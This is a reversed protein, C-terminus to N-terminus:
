QIFGQREKQVKPRSMFKIFCVLFQSEGDEITPSIGGLYRDGEFWALYNVEVILMLFIRM